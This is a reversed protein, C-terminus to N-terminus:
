SYSDRKQCNLKLGQCSNHNTAYSVSTEYDIKKGKGANTSLKAKLFNKQFPRRLSKESRQTLEITDDEEATGAKSKPVRLEQM